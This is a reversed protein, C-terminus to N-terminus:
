AQSILIFGREKGDYKSSMMIALADFQVSINKRRADPDRLEASMSYVKDVFAYHERKFEPIWLNAIIDDQRHDSFFSRVATSFPVSYFGAMGIRNAPYFEAKLLIGQESFFENIEEEELVVDLKEFIKEQSYNGIGKNKLIMEICAAGCMNKQQETLEYGAM